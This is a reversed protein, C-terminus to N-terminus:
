AGLVPRVFTRVSGAPGARRCPGAPRTLSARGLQAPDTWSAGQGPRTRGLQGFSADWLELGNFFHQDLSCGNLPDIVWSGMDTKGYSAIKPSALHPVYRLVFQTFWVYLRGNRVCRPSVVFRVLDDEICRLDAQIHLSADLLM